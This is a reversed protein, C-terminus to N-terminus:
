GLDVRANNGARGGVSWASCAEYTRVRAATTCASANLQRAAPAFAVAPAASSRELERRAARDVPALPQALAPARALLLLIPNAVALPRPM